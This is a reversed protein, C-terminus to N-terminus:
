SAVSVSLEASELGYSALPPNLPTGEKIFSNALHKNYQVEVFKGLISSQQKAAMDRSTSERFAQIAFFVKAALLPVTLLQAPQNEIATYPLISLSKGM